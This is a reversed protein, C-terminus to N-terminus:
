PTSCRCLTESRPQDAPPYYCITFGGTNGTVTVHHCPFSRCFGGLNFIDCFARDASRNAERDNERVLRGSDVELRRCFKFEAAGFPSIMWLRDRTCSWAWQSTDSLEMQLVWLALVKLQINPNLGQRYRNTGVAEEPQTPPLPHVYASQDFVGAITLAAPVWKTGM